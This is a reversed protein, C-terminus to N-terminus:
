NGTFCTYIKRYVTCLRLQFFYLIKSFSFGVAVLEADTKFGQWKLCKMVSDWVAKRQTADVNELSTSLHKRNHYSCLIHGCKLAEVVAFSAKSADTILTEVKLGLVELIDLISQENETASYSAGSPCLSGFSDQCACTILTAKEHKTTNHTGDITSVVGFVKAVERILPHQFQIGSIEMNAYQIRGVGGEDEWVKLQKILDDMGNSRSGRQEFASRLSRIASKRVDRNPYKNRFHFRISKTSAKGELWTNITRVMDQDLKAAKRYTILGSISVQAVNSPVVHNHDCCCSVILWLFTKRCLTYRSHCTCSTKAWRVFPMHCTRPQHCYLTGSLWAIDADPYQKKFWVPCNRTTRKNNSMQVGTQSEVYKKLDDFKEFCHSTGKDVVADEDADEDADAVSAASSEDDSDSEADSSESDSSEGSSSSGASGAGAGGSITWVVEAASAAAGPGTGRYELGVPNHRVFRDYGMSGHTGFGPADDSDSM